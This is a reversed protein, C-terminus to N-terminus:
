FKRYYSANGVFKGFWIQLDFLSSARFFTVLLDFDKDHGM